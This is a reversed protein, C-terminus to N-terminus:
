ELSDLPLEIQFVHRLAVKRAVEIGRKLYVAGFLAEFARANVKTNNPKFTQNEIDMYDILHLDHAIRAFNENKELGSKSDTGAMESLKDKNWDPHQRYLEERIILRLASDGLFALRQNHYPHASSKRHTLAQKYLQLEDDNFVYDRGFKDKGLFKHMCAIVKDM